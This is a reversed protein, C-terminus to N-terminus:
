SLREGKWKRKSNFVKLSAERELWYDTIYEDFVDTNVGIPLSGMVAGVETFLYGYKCIPGREQMLYVTLCEKFKM